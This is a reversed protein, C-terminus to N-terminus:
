ELGEVVFGSDEILQRTTDLTDGGTTLYGQAFLSNAPYLCLSQLSRLHYERGASARLEAQPVALRFLCLVKLCYRPTLTQPHLIRHGDVPIFFNVPISNAAVGKLERTMQIIDEATEGMGIIVGSCVDLGCGKATVITDVRQQYEHSTCIEGYFGSSTNLNHNYRNVGAAVLRRGDEESLFGASICIEMPYLAKIKEVVSCIKDIRKDALDKGSFVMCHRYAGSEFAQRAGEIIEGDSKMPYIEAGDQAAGSQACYKCDETCGGSQVNHLIHIKVRNEFYRYRIQYAADLLPLLEVDEGTLIWRIDEDDITGQDLSKKVLDSYRTSLTPSNL